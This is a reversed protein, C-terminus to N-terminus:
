WIKKPKCKLYLINKEAIKNEKDRGWFIFLTRVFSKDLYYVMKVIYEMQTVTFSNIISSFCM